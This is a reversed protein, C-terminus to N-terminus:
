KWLALLWEPPATKKMTRITVEKQEHILTTM